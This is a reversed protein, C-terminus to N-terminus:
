ASGVRAYVAKGEELFQRYFAIADRPASDLVGGEDENERLYDLLYVASRQAARLNPINMREDTDLHAVFKDRYTRMEKIYTDFFPETLTMADMLGKIFPERIRIVKSWHHKGKPDAFLKCWELVAIDLCNNSTTIWFQEVFPCGGNPRAAVFFAMSRLCHCCLIATRRVQGRRTMKYGELLFTDLM